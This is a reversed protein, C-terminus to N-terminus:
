NTCFEEEIEKATQEAADPKSLAKGSTARAIHQSGRRMLKAATVVSAEEAKVNGLVLSLAEEFVESQNVESGIAKYGASLIDFKSKLADRKAPDAKLAASYNEGLGSIKEGLWSGGKAESASKLGEITKQQASLLGKLAGITEVLGADYNEPDLDLKAMLAEISGEEVEDADGDDDKKTKADLLALASDLAKANPFTRAESISLGLKISRELQDDTIVSNDDGDKRKAEAVKEEETLIEKGAEAAVAEEEAIQEHTKEVVEEEKKAPPEEGKSIALDVADEFEMEEKEAVAAEVGADLEAEFDAPLGSGAVEEVVEINAEETVIVDDKKKLEESM